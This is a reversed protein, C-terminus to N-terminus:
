LSRLIRKLLMENVNGRFRVKRNIEVVPVYEGYQEALAPDDDIDVEHPTLEHQLLVQKATDCLHCGHRTYLVVDPTSAPEQSMM